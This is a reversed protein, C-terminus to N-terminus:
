VLAERELSFKQLLNQILLTRYEKSGRVDSIPSIEEAALRAAEEFVSPEITRDVLFKEVSHLRLVVPGVGGAAIAASQIKNGDMELYIAMTVTSIDLDKRRSVKFLRLVSNKVPLPLIVGGIIENQQLDLQKYGRYFSNIPVIRESSESLLKLSANLAFLVPLSDAIPSGNAINGGITAANRIQEAAFIDLIESFQPIESRCFDRIRSWNATAGFELQEANKKLYGIEHLHAIFMVNKDKARGKNTQVGFDTAGAVLRVQPYKAKLTLADALNAPKIATKKEGNQTFEIIVNSDALQQLQKEIEASDLSSLLDPMSEDNLALSAKVIPEYGTCRCLNGTLKEQIEPANFSKQKLTLDTLAMVIGPTCFGCQSGFHRIMSNQVPHLENNLNLGEVTIVHCLDLQFVFQICSDVMTYHIKRNEDLWGLIVTCAGCDGESCVVKTGTLNKRYRLFSSLPLFADEGAVVVKEKNIFFVIENRLNNM